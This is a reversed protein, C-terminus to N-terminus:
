ADSRPIPRPQRIPCKLRHRALVVRASSLPGEMAAKVQEPRRSWGDVAQQLAILVTASRPISRHRHTQDAAFAAHRSHERLATLGNGDGDDFNQGILESGITKSDREILSGNAAHPFAVQAIGTVLLPYAVGTVLTLALFVVVAQRLERLM